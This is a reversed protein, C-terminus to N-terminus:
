VYEEFVATAPPFKLEAAFSKAAQEGLGPTFQYHNDVIMPLVRKEGKPMENGPRAVRWICREAKQVRLAFL